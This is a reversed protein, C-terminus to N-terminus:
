ELWLMRFTQHYIPCVAVVEEWEVWAQCQQHNVPELALARDEWSVLQLEEKGILHIQEM